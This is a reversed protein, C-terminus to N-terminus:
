NDCIKAIKISVVDNKYKEYMDDIYVVKGNLIPITHSRFDKANFCILFKGKLDKILKHFIGVLQKEMIIVEKKEHDNLILLQNDFSQGTLKKRINGFKQTLSNLKLFSNIFCQTEMKKERKRLKDYKKIIKDKPQKSKKLMSYLILKEKDTVERNKLQVIKNMLLDFEKDNMQESIQYHTLIITSKKDCNTYYEVFPEGYNTLSNRRWRKVLDIDCYKKMKIFEKVSDSILYVKDIDAIEKGNGNIEQILKRIYNDDEYYSNIIKELEKDWFENKIKKYQFEIEALLIPHVIPILCKKIRNEIMECNPYDKFLNECDIHFSYSKESCKIETVYNNAILELYISDNNKRKLLKNFELNSEKFVRRVLKPKGLYIKENLIITDKKLDNNKTLDNLKRKRKLKTTNITTNIDNNESKLKVRKIFRKNIETKNVIMEYRFYVLEKIDSKSSQKFYDDLAVKLYIPDVDGMELDNHKNGLYLCDLFVMEHAYKINYINLPPRSKEFSVKNNEVETFEDYSKDYFPDSGIEESEDLQLDNNKIEEDMNKFHFNLYQKFIKQGM